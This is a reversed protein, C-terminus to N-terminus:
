SGIVSLEADTQKTQRGLLRIIKLYSPPAPALTPPLRWALRTPPPSMIPQLFIGRLGREPLGSYCGLVVTHAGLVEFTSASPLTWLPCTRMERARLKVIQLIPMVLAGVEYLLPLIFSHNESQRQLSLRPLVEGGSCGGRGM